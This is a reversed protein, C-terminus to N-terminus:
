YIGSNRQMMNEILTAVHPHLADLNKKFEYLHEMGKKLDDLENRDYRSEVQPSYCAQPVSPCKEYSTNLSRLM